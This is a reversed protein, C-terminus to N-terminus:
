PTRRFSTIVSWMQSPPWRRTDIVGRDPSSWEPWHHVFSALRRDEPHLPLAELRISSYIVYSFLIKYSLSNLKLISVLANHSYSTPFNPMESFFHLTVAKKPAWLAVPSPCQILAPLLYSTTSSFNRRMVKDSELCLQIYFYHDWSLFNTPVSKAIWFTSIVIM